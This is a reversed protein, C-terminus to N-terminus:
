VDPGVDTHVVPLVTTADTRAERLDAGELNAGTLDAGRLDANRLVAHELRAERLFAGNLQAGRLFAHRLHAGALFARELHAAALDAHDLCAATLLADELHASRLVVRPLDAFRLNLARGQEREWRRRVAPRRGLVTAVAQLEARLPVRDREWLPHGHRPMADLWPRAKPADEDPSTGQVFAVLVEMVPWHLEASDIAIQELAYIGGLRVSLKEPGVQGLQEVAKTFREALQGRRNLRLTRASFYLTGLLAAGGLGQLVSARLSEVHTLWDTRSLGASDVALAPLYVVVLLLVGMLAVLGVVLGGRRWRERM